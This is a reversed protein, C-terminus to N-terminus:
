PRRKSDIKRRYTSQVVYAPQEKIERDLESRLEQIQRLEFDGIVIEDRESECLDSGRLDAKFVARAVQRAFRV